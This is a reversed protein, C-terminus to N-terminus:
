ATGTAYARFPLEPPETEVNINKLSRGARGSPLALTWYISNMTNYSHIYKTSAATKEPYKASAERKSEYSSGSNENAL